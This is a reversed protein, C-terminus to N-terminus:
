RRFFEPQITEGNQYSQHCQHSYSHTQEQCFLDGKLIIPSDKEELNSQPEYMIEMVLIHGLFKSGQGKRCIIKRVFNNKIELFRSYPRSHFKTEMDPCTSSAAVQLHKIFCFCIHLVTKGFSASKRSGQFKINTQVSQIPEEQNNDHSKWKNNQYFTYNECYRFTILIVTDVIEKRVCSPRLTKKKRFAKRQHM